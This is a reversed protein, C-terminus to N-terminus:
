MRDRRRGGGEIKIAQRKIIARRIIKREREENEANHLMVKEGYQVNSYALFGRCEYQYRCLAFNEDETRCDKM